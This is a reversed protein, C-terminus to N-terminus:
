RRGNWLEDSYLYLILQGEGREFGMNLTGSTLIMNAPCVLKYCLQSSRTSQTSCHSPGTVPPIRTRVKNKYISVVIAEKWDNPVEGAEWIKNYFDLLLQPKYDDLLLFLENTVQDPGPAKNKKLKQIASQLEELSFSNHDSVSPRLNRHANLIRLSEPSQAPTKWQCNELYDRCAKHTQSWPVPKGEVVLHRKKGQFGRKQQRATSWM